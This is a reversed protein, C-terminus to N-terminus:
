SLGGAKPRFKMFGQRDAMNPMKLEKDSMENAKIAKDSKNNSVRKEAAMMDAPDFDVPAIDKDTSLKPQVGATEAMRWMIVTLPPVMQAMIPAGYKGQMFGYKLFMAVLMDIPLGAEMLNLFKKSVIPNRLRRFTYDLAEDLNAYQPPRDWPMTRPANQWAEGSIPGDILEKLM